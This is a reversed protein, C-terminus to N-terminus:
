DAPAAAVRRAQRQKALNLLVVGGIAVSGGLATLLGPVESVLLWSALLSFVPVLYLAATVLTVPARSLAFAFITYAVASPFVGIYLTALLPAPSAAAVDAVVGPAFALMPVTGAWTAFAAVEIPRYRAFMRRQMIAYLSTAVAAVVILWAYANFRVGAGSDGVVILAVGAFSVLSGLWGLAPLREGTMFVALLATIAPATAIILSAAGASVQTQGFNLALHYVTYGLVGLLFFYPLDRREPRLRARFALLLPVFAASAVLHRLLTLHPASLETLAIKIM